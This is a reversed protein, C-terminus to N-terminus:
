VYFDYLHKMFSSHNVIDPHFSSSLIYRGWNELCLIKVAKSYQKAGASKGRTAGDNGGVWKCRLSKEM